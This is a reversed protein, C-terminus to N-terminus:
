KEYASMLNFYIFTSYAGFLTGQLRISTSLVDFPNSVGVVAKLNDGPGREGKQMHSMMGAYTLAYNGGLSFGVMYIQVDKGFRDIM